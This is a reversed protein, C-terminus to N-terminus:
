EEKEPPDERVVSSKEEPFDSLLKGLDRPAPVHFKGGADEDYVIVHRGRQKADKLLLSQVYESFSDYGMARWRAEAQEFISRKISVTARKLEETGM